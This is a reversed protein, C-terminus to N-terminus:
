TSDSEIDAQTEPSLSFTSALHLKEESSQSVLGNPNDPDDPEDGLNFDISYTVTLYLINFQSDVKEKNNGNDMDFIDIILLTLYTEM